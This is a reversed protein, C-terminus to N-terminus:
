RCLRLGLALPPSKAAVKPTNPTMPVFLFLTFTPCSCTLFGLTSSSSSVILLAFTSSHPKLAHVAGPPHKTGANPRLLTQPIEKELEQKRPKPLLAAVTPNPNVVIKLHISKEDHRAPRGFTQATKEGQRTMKRKNKDLLLADISTTQVIDGLEIVGIVIGLDSSIM